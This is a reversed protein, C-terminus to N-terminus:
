EVTIDIEAVVGDFRQFTIQGGGIPLTLTLYNEARGWTTESTVEWEASPPPSFFIGIRPTLAPFQEFEGDQILIATVSFPSFAWDEFQIISSANHFSFKIFHNKEGWASAIIQHGVVYWELYNYPPHVITDSTVTLIPDELSGTSTYVTGGIGGVLEIYTGLSPLNQNIILTGYHTEVEPTTPLLSSPEDTCGLFLLFGLIIFSFLIVRKM